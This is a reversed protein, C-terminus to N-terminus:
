QVGHLESKQLIMDLFDEPDGMGAVKAYIVKHSKDPYIRIAMFFPTREEGLATQVAADGDPFLPYPIAYLDRFAKVEFPTNAAGIGIIKVRDRIDPREAILEYLENVAPAERQCYPCYMSFVQIIVVEAQVEPIKFFGRGKTGLYDREAIRKPVPLQFDPLRGGETVSGEARARGEMGDISLWGISFVFFLASILLSKRPSSSM